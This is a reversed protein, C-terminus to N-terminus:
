KAKREEWFKFYLPKREEFTLTLNMQVPMGDYYNKIYGSDNNLTLNLSSIFFGPTQSTSDDTRMLENMLSNINDIGGFNFTFIKDQKLIPVFGLIKKEEAKSYSKLLDIVKQYYKSENENQPMIIFTFSFKRPNTRSYTLLLGPDFTINSRLMMTHAFETMNSMINMRSMNNIGRRLAGPKSTGDNNKDDGKADTMQQVFNGMGKSASLAAQKVIEGMNLSDEHYDHSIEEEITNPIPLYIIDEVQEMQLLDAGNILQKAVVGIDQIYDSFKTSDSAAGGEQFTATLEQFEKSTKLSYVKLEFFDRPNIPRGDNTYLM